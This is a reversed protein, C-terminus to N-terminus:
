RNAPDFPAFGFTRQSHWHAMHKWVHWLGMSGGQDVAFREGSINASGKGAPNRALSLRAIDHSQIRNEDSSVLRSCDIRM